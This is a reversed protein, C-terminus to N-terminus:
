QCNCETEFYRHGVCDREKAYWTFRKPFAKEWVIRVKCDKAAQEVHKRYRRLAAYQLSDSQKHQTM